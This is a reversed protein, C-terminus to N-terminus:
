RGAHVRDLGAVYFAYDRLPLFAATERGGLITFVFMLSIAAAQFILVVLTGVLSPVWMPMPGGGRYAKLLAAAIGVVALAAFAVSVALLRVGIRPAFVSMASLGHVSLDVYNLHSTGAYRTGRTTPITRRPVRSDFVAAAYHNWLQSVAVLRPLQEAPIASFNGVRVPEGTLLRHGTRYLWYFVRFSAGESRRRREAFVIAGDSAGEDLARLLRPVDEPRDEGDGDMIVIPQREIHQDTYALAIAIARQHGVNRRLRLIEVPGLASPALRRLAEDDRRTSGDDVILVRLTLSEAAAIADLRSLLEAVSVWDNFVPIIVLARL